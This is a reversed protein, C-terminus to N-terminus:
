QTYQATRRGVILELNSCNLAASVACSATLEPVGAIPLGRQWVPRSAHILLAPIEYTGMLEAKALVSSDLVKLFEESSLNPDLVHVRDMAFITFIYRHQGSGAPPLPGSYGLKDFGNPGQVAGLPNSLQELAPVGALLNNTTAPINLIIWHVFPNPDPNAPSPADPDTCIIMFSKTGAPAGKWALPPSTNAGVGTHEVPIRTGNQFAPSSLTFEEKVAVGTPIDTKELVWMQGRVDAAPNMVLRKEPDLDETAELFRYSNRDTLGIVSGGFHKVKFTQTMWYQQSSFRLMLKNDNHFDLVHEMNNRELGNALRYVDGADEVFKWLQGRSELRQALAPRSWGELVTLFGHDESDTTGSQLRYYFKTDIAAAPTAQAHALVFLLLLSLVSLFFRMQLM